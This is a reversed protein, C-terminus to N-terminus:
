PQCMVAVDFRYDVSFHPVYGPKKEVGGIM